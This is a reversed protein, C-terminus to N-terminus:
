REVGLSDRDTIGNWVKAYVNRCKTFGLDSNLKNVLDPITLRDVKVKGLNFETYEKHTLMIHDFDSQTFKTCDRKFTPPTCPIPATVPVETSFLKLMARLWM